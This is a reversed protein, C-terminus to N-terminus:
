RNTLNNKKIFEQIEKEAREKEFGCKQQLLGRLEEQTGKMKQIDDDNLQAWQQKLKGKVENWKGKIIDENM